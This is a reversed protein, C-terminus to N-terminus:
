TIMGPWEQLFSLPHVRGVNIGYKKIYPLRNWFKMMMFSAGKINKNETNVDCYSKSKITAQLIQFSRDLNTFQEM